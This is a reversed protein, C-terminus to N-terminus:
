GVGGDSEVGVLVWVSASSSTDGVGEPDELEDEETIVDIITVSDGVEAAEEDAVVIVVDVIEREAVGRRESEGGGREEGRTWGGCEPPGGGLVPASDM